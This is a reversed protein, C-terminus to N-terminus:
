IAEVTQGANKVLWVYGDELGPQVSQAAPYAEASPGVLRYQTEEALRLMSVVTLDHDPKELGSCTM